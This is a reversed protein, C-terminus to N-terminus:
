SGARVPGPPGPRSSEARDDGLGPHETERRREEVWAQIWTGVYAVFAVACAVLAVITAFPLLVDESLVSQTRTLVLEWEVAM